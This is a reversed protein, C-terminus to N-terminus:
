VLVPASHHVAPGKMGGGQGWGHPQLLPLLHPLLLPPSGVRPPQRCLERCSSLGGLSPLFLLPQSCLHTLTEPPVQAPQSSPRLAQLTRPSPLPSLPAQVAVGGGVLNWFTRPPCSPARGKLQVTELKKWFECEGSRREEPGDRIGSGPDPGEPCLWSAERVGSSCDVAREDM